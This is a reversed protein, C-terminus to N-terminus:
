RASAINSTQSPTSRSVDKTTTQGTEIEIPRPQSKATNVTRQALETDDSIVADVGAQTAKTIEDPNNEVGQFIKIGRDHLQDILEPSVYKTKVAITTPKHKFKDVEEMTLGVPDDKIKDKMYFNTSIGPIRDVMMDLFQRHESAIMVQDPSIVGDDFLQNLQATLNDALSEPTYGRFRRHESNIVNAGLEMDLILTARTPAIAAAMETLTPIQQDTVKWENDTGIARLNLQKAQGVTMECIKDSFGHEDRNFNTKPVRPNEPTSDPRPGVQDARMIVLEGAGKTGDVSACPQPDVEIITAGNEVAQLAAAISNEAHIKSGGRHGIVDTMYYM